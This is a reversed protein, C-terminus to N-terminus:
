LYVVDDGEPMEESSDDHPTPLPMVLYTPIGSCVYAIDPGGFYAVVDAAVEPEVMRMPRLQPERAHKKYGWWRSCGDEYSEHLTDIYCRMKDCDKFAALQRGYDLVARMKYFIGDADRTVHILHKVKDTEVHEDGHHGGHRVKSNWHKGRIHHVAFFIGVVIAASVLAGIVIGIILVKCRKRGLARKGVVTHGTEVAVPATPASALKTSIPPIPPLVPLKQDGVKEAWGM